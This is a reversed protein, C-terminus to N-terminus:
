EPPGIPRRHRLAPLRRRVEEVRALDIPAMVVEVEEGAMALVKGWPDVIASHGHAVFQGAHQGTQNAAVVFAQSEIARARVLVEWHDRGTAATFASPVCLVEAGAEELRAFLAPFRLDYCIAQGLTGLPTPVAVAKEGPVLWRSEMVTLQGPLDVDFLHAKRYRALLSGDPGFVLSTNHVKAEGAIQECLSGAVLVIKRRAALASMARSTPGPVPEASALMQEWRGFCAFMEPLVVLRAGADVAQEICRTAAAVNGGVDEQSCMQVAAALYPEPM